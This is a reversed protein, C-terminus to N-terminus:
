PKWHKSYIESAAGAADTVAGQWAQVNGGLYLVNMGGNGVKASSDVVMSGATTVPHRYAVRSPTTIGASPQDGTGDGAELLWFKSSPNSIQTEKKSSIENTSIYSVGNKGGYNHNRYMPTVSSPCLFLETEFSTKFVTPFNTNMAGSSIGLYPALKCAFGSNAVSSFISPLWGDYDQLYMGTATGFGKMNSICSTSRGRERASNLAPLLIAALIAIIAIVVLLEILTFDRSKVVARLPSHKKM